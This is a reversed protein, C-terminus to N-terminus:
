ATEAVPDAAEAPPGRGEFPDRRGTRAIHKLIRDVVEPETIVSVVKMETGWKPCLLPHVEYIKHLRRAWSAQPRRYADEGEPAETGPDCGIGSPVANEEEKGATQM